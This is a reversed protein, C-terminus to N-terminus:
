DINDINKNLKRRLARAAARLPQALFAGLLFIGISVLISQVM